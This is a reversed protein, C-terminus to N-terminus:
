LELYKKDELVLLVVPISVPAPLVVRVVKVAMFLIHSVLLM